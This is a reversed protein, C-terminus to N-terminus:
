QTQEPAILRITPFYERYRQGDRTLLEAGCVAAHAGIFFDSRVKSKRGGRRRYRLFAKAALFLAARPLELFDLQMREVVRDLAEATAFSMSLEAYIVPNVALRHVQAQWTLQRLSWEGWKPDDQLVDILVNTDVLVM